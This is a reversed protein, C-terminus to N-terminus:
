ACRACKTPRLSTALSQGRMTQSGLPPLPALLASFTNNSFTVVSNTLLAGTVALGSYANATAGAVYAGNVGFYCNQVTLTMPPLGALAILSDTAFGHVVMGRVYPTQGNSFVTM